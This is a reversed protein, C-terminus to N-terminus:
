FINVLLQRRHRSAIRRQIAFVKTVGAASWSVFTICGYSLQISCRDESGLTPPELGEPHAESIGRGAVTGPSTMQHCGTDLTGRKLSKHLEDAGVASAKDEQEETGASAECVGAPSESLPGSHVGRPDLVSVGSPLKSVEASRPLSTIVPLKAIALSKEEDAVHTYRNMTLEISSHRALLQATKPHVDGKALNSVFAHRLSHFDAYLGDQNRYELFDSSLRKQREEETPASEVWLKKAVALDKKIMKSTKRLEGKATRLGFIPQRPELKRTQLWSKLNKVLGPHLPIEDDRGNKTHAARLKVTPSDSDLSLDALTVSAVEKRRCGTMQCFEYLMARDGGSMGEISAGDRAAQILHATEEVTLPRRDHRRDKRVNLPLIGRIPNEIARGDSVLWNGFQKVAQLYFNCTQSSLGRAKLEHIYNQIRSRQLDAIRIVGCEEVVKRLRQLTQHVHFESSGKSQLSRKFDVLHDVILKKSNELYSDIEGCKRREVEQERKVLMRNSVSKDKAAVQRRKKGYEDRYEIYWRDSERNIREGTRPDIVTYKKKFVRGMVEDEENIGSQSDKEV